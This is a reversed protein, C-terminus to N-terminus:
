LSNRLVKIITDYDYSGDYRIGNIYFTPTGNVGSRVGNMFDEQVRKATEVLKMDKTFQDIDLDLTRGYEMLDESELADQNEFIMDHMEWFKKQKGAAEAACAAAFAHMHLENLPFNRFVFCLNDGMKEQIRKVIPYAEGCNPCEFDGYEVLKIPANINGQIHDEKGIAVKLKTM